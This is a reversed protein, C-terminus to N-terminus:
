SIAVVNWSSPLICSPFALLLVCRAVTYYPNVGGESLVLSPYLTNGRDHAQAAACFLGSCLNDLLEEVNRVSRVAYNEM